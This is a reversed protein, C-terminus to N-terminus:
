ECASIQLFEAERSSKLRTDIKKTSPTIAMVGAAETTKVSKPIKARNAGRSRTEAAAEQSGAKWGAISM